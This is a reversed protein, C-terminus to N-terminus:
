TSSEQDMSELEIRREDLTIRWEKLELRKNEQERRSKAEEEIIKLQLNCEGNPSM